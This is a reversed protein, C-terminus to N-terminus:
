PDVAVDSFGWSTHRHRTGDKLKFLSVCLAESIRYEWRSGAGDTSPKACWESSYAEAPQDFWVAQTLGVRSQCLSAGGTRTKAGNCNLTAPATENGQFDAIALRKAGDERIAALFLVCSGMNELWFAPNYRTTFLASGPHVELRHCSQLLVHRTKQPTNASLNYTSLRPFVCAGTPCDQGGMSFPITARMAMVQSPEPTMSTACASLMSALVILRM